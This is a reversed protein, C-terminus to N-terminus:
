YCGGGGIYKATGTTRYGGGTGVLIQYQGGDGVMLVPATFSAIGTGMMLPLILVWWQSRGVLVCCHTSGVLGVLLAPLVLLRTGM